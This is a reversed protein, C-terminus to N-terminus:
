DLIQECLAVFEDAFVSFEDWKIGGVLLSQSMVDKMEVFKVYAKFAADAVTQQPATTTLTENNMSGLTLNQIAFELDHAISELTRNWCRGWPKLTNQWPSDMENSDLM